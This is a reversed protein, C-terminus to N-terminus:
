AHADRGAPLMVPCTMYVADADYSALKAALASAPNVPVEHFGMARWGPASGGVAILSLRPLGHAAALDTLRGVLARGLGRGRAAVNLAVDHVYLCDPAAPLGGLLSDLAPPAGDIWPHTLGYGCFAGDVEAVFCGAPFLRLREVAVEPREPYAQHVADALAGVQPLDNLTLTRWGTRMMAEGQGKHVSDM